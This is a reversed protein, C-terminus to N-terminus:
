FSISLMRVSYLFIGAILPLLQQKVFQWANLCYGMEDLIINSVVSRYIDLDYQGQNLALPYVFASFDASILEFIERDRRFTQM